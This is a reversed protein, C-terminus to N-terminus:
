VACVDTQQAMAVWRLACQPRLDIRMRCYEETTLALRWCLRLLHRAFLSLSFHACTDAASFNKRREIDFRINALCRVPLFIPAGCGGKKARETQRGAAKEPQRLESASHSPTFSVSCEKQEPPRTAPTPARLGSPRHISRTLPSSEM